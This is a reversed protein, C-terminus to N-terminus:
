DPLIIRGEPNLPFFPNYAVEWPHGDLDAFYGSYGGWCATVAPKLLRAGAEVAARLAADVEERRAVNLALTIGGFGPPTDPLAADEALMARPHLALVLNALAFFAITENGASRSRRFGLREYFAASAELDSVGLTVLNVRAPVTM